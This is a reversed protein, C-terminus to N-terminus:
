KGVHTKKRRAFWVYIPPVVLLTLYTSSLHGGIMTIALPKQMAAGTAFAMPVLGLISTATTVIIPKLRRVTAETIAEEASRGELVLQNAFDVMVISANVTVGVLMIFGVFVLASLHIGWLILAVAVGSVSLPVACLIIAPQSLSEFQGALMLYILLISLGVALLLSKTSEKREQDQGGIRWPVPHDKFKANLDKQIKSIATQLDIGNLNASVIEVRKRDIHNVSGEVKREQIKSVESLFLRHDDDVPVSFDRIKNFGDYFGQSAMIKVPLDQGHIQLSGATVGGLLTKLSSLFGSPDANLSSLREKSFQITLESIDPQRSNEVDVLGPIGQLVQTVQQAQESLITLDDGVVEIQVPKGEGILAKKKRTARLDPTRSFVASIAAQVHDIQKPDAVIMLSAMQPGDEGVQIAISEIAKDGRLAKEIGEVKEETKEITWGPPFQLVYNLRNYSEDPFLEAGLAGLILFGVVTAAIAMRLVPSSNKLIRGLQRRLGSEASYMVAATFHLIPSVVAKVVPRGVAGILKFLLGIIRMSSAFVLKVVFGISSLGLAFAAFISKWELSSSKSGSNSFAPLIGSLVTRLSKLPRPKWGLELACLMPIVVLAIVLSSGVSFCITMAVDRFIKGITGEVFALPGFVAMLSLTSGTIAGAVQRAGVLAAERPDQITARLGHIADLVVTSNDVLMGVGLALGCLSMVNFSMGSFYMLVVTLFLSLPITVSVVFTPWISQILLFIVLAALLGGQIVSDSVDNIAFEIETGQDVLIRGEVSESNESLYTGIVNRAKQAVDVSNAEASKRVDLILSESGNLRTRILPKEERRQIRAIDSLRTSRADEKKVVVGALQAEDDISLGLKVPTRNGEFLVDGAPWSKNRADISDAVSAFGVKYSAALVPDVEVVLSQSSDGSVQALAVGDISEIKRVLTERIMRSFEISSVASNKKKLALRIIPESNASSRVIKPKAVGEPLGVGDIRDRLFSLTEFMQTHSSFKLHIESRDPLSLSSTSLLGPVTSVAREIPETVLGEVETPTAGRFVSVITYDSGEINPMLQVPIRNISIWGLLIIGLCLMSIAIPRRIAFAIM